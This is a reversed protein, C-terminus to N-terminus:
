GTITYEVTHTHTGMKLKYKIVSSCVVPARNLIIMVDFLVEWVSIKPQALVTEAVGENQVCSSVNGFHHNFPDTCIQPCSTMRRRERDLM